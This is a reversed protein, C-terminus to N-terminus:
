YATLENNGLFVRLIPSWPTCTSSGILPKRCAQVRFFATVPLERPRTTFMMLEGRKPRETQHSFVPAADVGPRQGYALNWHTSRPITPEGYSVRVEADCSDFHAGISPTIRPFGYMPPNFGGERLVGQRVKGDTAICNEAARASPDGAAQATWVADLTAADSTSAGGLVAFTSLVAVASRQAMGLAM